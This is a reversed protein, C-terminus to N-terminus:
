LFAGLAKVQDIMRNSFGWENDYWAMVKVLKGEVKTQTADFVSSAPNHNFDISVLPLTNYELVGAMAGEAAAKVIENVEEATTERKAVFTLDVLSVNVTPVRVAMGDLKGALEPLVLGVAKAAGTKTPIMSQTASRARYLDKHYVDCLNQDNTFAHITTMSGQEIGVVDNLAKAVPALCNTTCSANSVINSEANLVESNVGHVVTADLDTGPASVIVKKAGAEIHKAAADRSTFIGTCELVIDVNLAKWPLNAPDREQTLTIEDNGIILTNGALTLKEQFRGHVSDFQTLHANTEAPALDNIAVIKIQENQGSEYLARLVNRGIRGYGNIAINIM